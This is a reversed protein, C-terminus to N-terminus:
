WGEWERGRLKESRQGGGRGSGGAERTSKPARGPTSSRSDLETIRKSGGVKQFRDDDNEVEKKGKRKGKEMRDIKQAAKRAASSCVKAM